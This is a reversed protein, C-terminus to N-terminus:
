ASRIYLLDLQNSPDTPILIGIQTRSWGSVRSDPMVRASPSVTLLRVIKMASTPKRPDYRGQCSIAQDINIVHCVGKENEAVSPTRGGKSFWLIFIPKLLWTGWARFSFSVWFVLWSKFSAPVEKQDVDAMTRQCCRDKDKLWASCHSNLGKFTVTSKPLPM